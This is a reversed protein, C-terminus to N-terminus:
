MYDHGAQTGNGTLTPLLSIGDIPHKIEVGLVQALTPLLDYQASRPDSVTGPKIHGPWRAIFPVRIGGEYLDTKQGRLGATSNFFKVDIGGNYTPGNDSSFLIITNDDLGLQKLKAMLQGLDDDVQSIMAAYAARPNTQPTYGRKGTYPEEEGFEKIYRQIFGNKPQLSVHPVPTAYYLFFPSHQHKDLFA